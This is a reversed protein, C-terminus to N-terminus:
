LKQWGQQKDIVAYSKGDVDIQEAFAYYDRDKFKVNTGRIPSTTPDQADADLGDIITLENTM